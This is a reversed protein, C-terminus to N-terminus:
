GSYFYIGQKWHIYQQLSQQDCQLKLRCFIGGEREGTQENVIARSLTIVWHYSGAIANQVHSSSVAIGTPSHIAAQYWSQQRVDVYKNLRDAGSNILAEGNDAVAAVNYIDSRSELITTFQTLIREKAAEKEEPTQEQNFLIVRCIVEM